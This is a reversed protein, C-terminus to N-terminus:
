EEVDVVAVEFVLVTSSDIGSQPRGAIGYALSPRALLWIRGGNELLQLGETWAPIVNALGFRAVRGNGNDFRRGDVFYGEYFVRVVSEETIPTGSGPDEIVYVLGSASVTTDMGNADVFRDIQEQVTGTRPTTAVTNFEPREYQPRDDDDNGECGALLALFAVVVALYPSPVKVSSLQM